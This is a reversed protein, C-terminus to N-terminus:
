LHGGSGHSIGVGGVKVAEDSGEAKSRRLQASTTTYGEALPLRGIVDFAGAGDGLIVGGVDVLVPRATGNVTM